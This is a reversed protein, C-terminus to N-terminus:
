YLFPILKKTTNKYSPYKAFSKKLLNEEYDIKFLLNIFLIILIILRVTNFYNLVLSVSVLLISAYMPHRIYQYPGNVVLNSKKAVDPTIQLRSKQQMVFTSWLGLVFGTLEFILFVGSAVVPETLFIFILCLFQIGVLTLSKPNDSM